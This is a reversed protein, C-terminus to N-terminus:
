TERMKKLMCSVIDRCVLCDEPIEKQGRESLYGLHFHCAKPKENSEKPAESHSVESPKSAVQSNSQEIKLEPAEIKTLCFPCAYYPEAPSDQLNLTKLPTTFTKGCAVNPCTFPKKEGMEIVLLKGYECESYRGRNITNIFEFYSYGIM